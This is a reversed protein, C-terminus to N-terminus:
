FNESQLCITRQQAKVYRNRLNGALICHLHIFNLLEVAIHKELFLAGTIWTLVSVESHVSEVSSSEVSFTKKLVILDTSSGSYDPCQEQFTIFALSSCKYLVEKWLAKCSCCVSVSQHPETLFMSRVVLGTVLPRSVRGGSACSGRSTSCNWRCIDWFKLVYFQLACGSVM